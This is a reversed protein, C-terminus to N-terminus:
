SEQNDNCKDQDKGARALFPCLKSGLLSQLGAVLM